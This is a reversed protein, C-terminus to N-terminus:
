MIIQQLHHNMALIPYIIVPGPGPFIATLTPHTLKKGRLGRPLEVALSTGRFKKCTSDISWHSFALVHRYISTSM